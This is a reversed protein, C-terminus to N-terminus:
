FGLQDINCYMYSYYLIDGLLAIILMLNFRFRLLENVLLRVIFLSLLFWLPLNGILASDCVLQKLPYVVYLKWDYFGYLTDVSWM